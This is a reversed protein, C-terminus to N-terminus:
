LDTQLHDICDEVSVELSDIAQQVTQEFTNASLSPRVDEVAAKIKRGHKGPVTM